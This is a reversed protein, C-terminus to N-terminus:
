AENHPLNAVGNKPAPQLQKKACLLAALSRSLLQAHTQVYTHQNAQKLNTHHQPAAAHVSKKAVWGDAIVDCFTMQVM